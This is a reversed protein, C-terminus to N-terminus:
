LPVSRLYASVARNAEVGDPYGAEEAIEDWSLGKIKLALATEAQEDSM